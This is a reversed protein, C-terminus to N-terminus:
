QRACHRQRMRGASPIESLREPMTSLYANIETFGFSHLMHLSFRLVERIEEQMQDPTVFLHADDQTFGRVRMLGHM